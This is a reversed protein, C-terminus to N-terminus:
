GNWNSVGGTVFYYPDNPDWNRYGAYSTFSIGDLRGGLFPTDVMLRMQSAAIIQDCFGNSRSGFMYLGNNSVERDTTNAMQLWERIYQNNLPFFQVYTLDGGSWGLPVMFLDSTLTAGDRTVETGSTFRFPVRQGAILLYQGQMMENFRNELIQAERTVPEGAGGDGCRANAYTCAFQFALARFLRADGVFELMLGEFGTDMARQTAAYFLDHAQQSITLGGVTADVAADWSIVISDAAPCENGHVDTIGEALLNSLGDFEKIWGDETSTYAVSSDGDMTVPAIARRAAISIELLQKASVSRLNIGPEQLRDPLLPDRRRIFNLLRRETDGRDRLKGIEPVQVKKGGIFLKGFERNVKCKYLDGPTVPEGCWDAPNSGSSASQHTLIEIAENEYESPYFPLDDLFSRPMQIASYVGERAGPESFIGGTGHVSNEGPVDAGVDHKLVLELERLMGNKLMWEYRQKRTLESQRSKTGRGTRATKKKGIQMLQKNM